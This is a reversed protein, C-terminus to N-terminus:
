NPKKVTTQPPAAPEKKVPAPTPAVPKTNTTTFSAANSFINTSQPKPTPPPQAKPVPKLAPFAAAAKPSDAQNGFPNNSVKKAM